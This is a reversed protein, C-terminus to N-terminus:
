MEASSPKRAWFHLTLHQKGPGCLGGSKPPHSWAPNRPHASSTISTEAEPELHQCWTRSVSLSLPQSVPLPCEALAPCLALFGWCSLPESIPAGQPLEPLTMPWPHTKLFWCKGCPLIVWISAAASAWLRGKGELPSSGLTGSSAESCGEEM